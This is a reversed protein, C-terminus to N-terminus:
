QGPMQIGDDCERVILPDKSLPRDSDGIANVEAIYLNLCCFVVCIFCQIQYTNCLDVSPM